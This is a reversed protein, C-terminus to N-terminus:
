VGSMVSWWLGFVSMLFCVDLDPWLVSVLLRVSTVDSMLCWVDSALGLVDSTLCWVDSMLLRDSSIQGSIMFRASLLMELCYTIIQQLIKWQLVLRWVCPILVKCWVGAMGSVLYWFRVGSVLYWFRVGAMGAMIGKNLCLLGSLRCVAKCVACPCYLAPWGYVLWWPRQINALM